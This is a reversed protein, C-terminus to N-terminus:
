STPLVQEWTLAPDSRGFHGHNTTSEYIPRLLDLRAIIGSPTLDFEDSLDALLSRMPDRVDHEWRARNAQWFACPWSLPHM